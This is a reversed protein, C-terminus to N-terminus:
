LFSEFYITAVNKKVLLRNNRREIEIKRELMPLSEKLYHSSDVPEDQVLLIVSVPRSLHRATSVYRATSGFMDALFASVSLHFLDRRGAM